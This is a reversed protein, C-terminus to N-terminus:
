LKTFSILGRYPPHGSGSRFCIIGSGPFLEPDKRIRIRLGTVAQGRLNGLSAVVISSGRGEGEVLSVARGECVAECVEM